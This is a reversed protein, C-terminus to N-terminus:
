DLDTSKLNPYRRLLREKSVLTKRHVFSFLNDAGGKGDIEKSIEDPNLSEAKDMEGSLKKLLDHLTFPVQKEKPLRSDVLSVQALELPLSPQLKGRHKKWLNYVVSDEFVPPAFRRENFYDIQGQKTLSQWWSFLFSLDAKLQTGTLFSQDERLLMPVLRRHKRDESAFIECHPLYYCYQIDKGDNRDSAFLGRNSHGLAWLFSVRSCYFAYPSFVSLPPFKEASWRNMVKIQFDRPMKWDWFLLYLLSAQIRPDRLTADVIDKLEEDSKPPRFHLGAKVIRQQWVSYNMPSEIETRWDAITEREGEVFRGSEWRAIKKEIETADINFGVKGELNRVTHGATPVFTGDMEIHNGLLSHGLIERCSVMIGNNGSIKYSNASVKSPSSERPNLKALDALIENQLVPPVILFFYKDLADIEAPSSGVIVSKDLIIRLATV